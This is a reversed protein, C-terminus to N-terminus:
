LIKTEAEAEVEAPSANMFPYVSSSVSSGRLHRQASSKKTVESVRKAAKSVRWTEESAGKSAM